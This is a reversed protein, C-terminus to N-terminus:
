FRDDCQRGLAPLLDVLEGVLRELRATRGRVLRHLHVEHVSPAELVGVTVEPLDDPHIRTREPFLRECGLRARSGALADSAIGAELIAPKARSGDAGVPRASPKSVWAGLCLRSFPLAPM